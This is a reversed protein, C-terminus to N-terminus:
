PTVSHLPLQERAVVYGSKWIDFYRNALTKELDLGM